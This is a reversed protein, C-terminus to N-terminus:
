LCVESSLWLMLTLVYSELLKPFIVLVLPLALAPMHAQLVLNLM